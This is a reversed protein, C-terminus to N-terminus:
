QLPCFFSSYAFANPIPISSIMVRPVRIGSRRSTREVIEYLDPQEYRTVEKVRYMADVIYPAILWQILNFVVVLLVLTFIDFAGVISLVLTFFLTSVGIILMLTTLVSLRLRM